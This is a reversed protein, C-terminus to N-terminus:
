AHFDDKTKYLSFDAGDLICGDKSTVLLFDGLDKIVESNYGGTEKQKKEFKNHIKSNNRVIHFVSQHGNNISLYDFDLNAKFLVSKIVKELVSCPTGSPYRVVKVGDGPEYKKLLKAKIFVDSAHEELKCYISSIKRGNLELKTEKM